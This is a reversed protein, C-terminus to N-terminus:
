EQKQYDYSFDDLIAALKKRLVSYSFFQEALKYNKDVMRKKAGPDTLVRKVDAVTKQTLFGDMAIVDFGKPEIDVIYVTYRNVLIPKKFFVAELFANGFGEYVSPYTVLDVHPYIDWLSYLRNGDDDFSRTEDLRNYLLHVDIEQNRATELIWDLYEQGEDGASHSILLKVRPLDLRKVLYIAQEIGKRSVIRTPQLILIDDERFGFDERFHVNDYDINNSTDDFDIVNYIISSSLGRKSALDNQIMSNIVVHHMSHLDPPFAQQIIEPVANILFRPREWWFDHHHGIAPIGTEAIVETVAVGLPIHMPIALCNEPILLDLSYDQIFAYIRDKLYDATKRITDTHNRKRTKCGFVAKNLKINDPHNFFAEPVCLSVSADKDLVGAFWFCSHGFEELVAAWKGSELSVGDTGAFRTSIFGINLRGKKKVLERTSGKNTYM